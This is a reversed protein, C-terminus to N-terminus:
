RGEKLELAVPREACVISDGTNGFMMNEVVIEGNVSINLRQEKTKKAYRLILGDADHEVTYSWYAEQTEGTSWNKFQWILTEGAASKTTGAM